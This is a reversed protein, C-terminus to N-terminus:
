TMGGEQLSKTRKEKQVERRGEIEFTKPIIRCTQFYLMRVPKEEHIKKRRSVCDSIKVEGKKQLGKNTSVLYVRGIKEVKGRGRPENRGGREDKKVGKM